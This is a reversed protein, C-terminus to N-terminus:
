AIRGVVQLGSSSLREWGNLDTKPAADGHWYREIADIVEGPMRGPVGAWDMWGMEHRGIAADPDAPLVEYCGKRTLGALLLAHERSEFAFSCNFRSVRANSRTVRVYEFLNERYFQSKGGPYATSEDGFAIIGSGYGGPAIISGNAHVHESNHWLSEQRM